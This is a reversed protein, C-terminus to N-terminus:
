SFIAGPNEPDYGPFSDPVKIEIESESIVTRSAILPYEGTNDIRFQQSLGGSRTYLFINFRLREKNAISLSYASDITQNPYLYDTRFPHRTYPKMREFDVEEDLDVLYAYIDFAPYSSFNTLCIDIISKGPAFHFAEFRVHSGTGLTFGEFDQYYKELRSVLSEIRGDINSLNRDVSAQKKVRFFQGTAWSALFFSPVFVNILARLDWEESTWANFVTWAIAVVAPLWFEKFLRKTLNM